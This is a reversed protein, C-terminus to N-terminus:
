TWCVSSALGSLPRLEGASAESAAPTAISRLSQISEQSSAVVEAPITTGPAVSDSLASTAIPVTTESNLSSSQVPIAQQTALTDHICIALLCAALNRASYQM